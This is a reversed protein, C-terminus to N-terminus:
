ICAQSKGGSREKSRLVTFYVSFFDLPTWDIIWMYIWM